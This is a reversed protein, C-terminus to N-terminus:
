RATQAISNGNAAANLQGATVTADADAGAWLEQAFNDGEGTAIQGLLTTNTSDGSAGQSATGWANAEIDGAQSNQGSDAVQRLATVTRLLM